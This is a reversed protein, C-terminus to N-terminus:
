TSPPFLSYRLCFIIEGSLKTFCLLSNKNLFKTIKRQLFCVFPLFYQLQIVNVLLNVYYEYMCLAVIRCTSPHVGAAMNHLDGKSVRCMKWCVAFSPTFIHIYTLIYICKFCTILLACFRKQCIQMIVRNAQVSDM